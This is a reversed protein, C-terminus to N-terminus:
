GQRCVLKDPDVPRIHDAPSIELGKIMPYGIKGAVLKGYSLRIATHQLLLQPDDLGTICPL